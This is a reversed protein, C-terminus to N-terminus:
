NITSFANIICVEKNVGLKETYKVRKPINRSVYFDFKMTLGHM